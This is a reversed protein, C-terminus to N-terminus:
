KQNLLRVLFACIMPNSGAGWISEIINFVIICGSKLLYKFNKSFINISLNFLILLYCNGRIIEKKWIQMKWKM